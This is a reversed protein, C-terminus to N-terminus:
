NVNIIIKKSKNKYLQYKKSKYVVKKFKTDSNM